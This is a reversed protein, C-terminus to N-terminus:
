LNSMKGRLQRLYQTNDIREYEREQPNIPRYYQKRSREANADFFVVFIGILIAGGFGIILLVAAIITRVRVSLSKRFLLFGTIALASLFLGFGVVVGFGTLGLKFPEPPSIDGWFIIQFLNNM